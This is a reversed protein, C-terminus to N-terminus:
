LIDIFGKVSERVVSIEAALDGGEDRLKRLLKLHLGHDKGSTKAAPELGQGATNGLGEDTTRTNTQDVAGEIQHHFCADSPDHDVGVMEPFFQLAAEVVPLGGVHLQDPTMLLFNPPGAPPQLSSTLMEIFRDQHDVGVNKDVKIHCSHRVSM